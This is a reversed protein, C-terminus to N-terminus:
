FYFNFNKKDFEIFYFTNSIVELLSSLYNLFSFFLIFSILSFPLIENGPHLMVAFLINTEKRSCRFIFVFMHSVQRCVCVCMCQVATSLRMLKKVLITLLKERMGNQSVSHPKILVNLEIEACLTVTFTCKVYRFQDISVIEVFKIYMHIITSAHQATKEIWYAVFRLNIM